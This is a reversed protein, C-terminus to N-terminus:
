ALDAAKEIWDAIRDRAIESRTALDDADSAALERFSSLGLEALKKAYVPGIGNVETLDDTDISPEATPPAQPSQQPSSPPDRFAPPHSTPTEPGPLLQDRLVWTIGVVLAVLTILKFFKKM